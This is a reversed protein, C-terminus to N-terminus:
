ITSNLVRVAKAMSSLKAKAIDKELLVLGCDPALILQKKEIYVLAENAQEVIEEVTEIKDIGVDLCGLLVKKNGLYKLVSLDLDGQKAEISIQDIQSKQLLKLLQPYYRIDSKYVIGSKEMNKDPYSRCVHVITTIGPVDEFCMDLAKIGWQEARMLNRLLGPDDFQIIDCGANKLHLVEQRIARAYDFALDRESLYYNNDSADVVTTPGPLCIKVLNTTFQKTFVFDPVVIQGSYCIHSSVRPVYHKYATENRGNLIKKVDRERIDLFDFGNIKELVYFIYHGRRQEGDTFIDLGAAKLDCVTEWIARDLLKDFRRKGIRKEIVKLADGSTDIIQTGTIGNLIYEPKPYSGVITSLIKSQLEKSRTKEVV